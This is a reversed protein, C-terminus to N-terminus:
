RTQLLMGNSEVLTMQIWGADDCGTDRFDTKSIIKGDTGLYELNDREKLNEL